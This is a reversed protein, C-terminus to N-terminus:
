RRPRSRRQATASRWSGARAREPSSASSRASRHRCCRWRARRASGGRDGTGRGPRGAPQRRGRGALGSGLDRRDCAHLRAPSRAARRDGACVMSADMAAAPPGDGARPAPHRRHRVGVPRIRGVAVAVPRRVAPRHGGLRASTRWRTARLRASRRRGCGDRRGTVVSPDPRALIVFGVISVAGLVWLGRRRVGAARGVLLVVALVITLNTGSVAMLHTLGSRRFDEEVEDSVRSDDGDVLAPVLARPEDGTHEVSTRVGERM